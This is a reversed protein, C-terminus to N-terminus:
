ARMRRKNLSICNEAPWWQYTRTASREKMKKKLKTFGLTRLLKDADELADGDLCDFIWQITKRDSRRNDKIIREFKLIFPELREKGFHTPMKHRQPSGCRRLHRQEDESSDESYM